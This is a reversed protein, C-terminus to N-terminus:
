GTKVQSPKKFFVNWAGGQRLAYHDFGMEGLVSYLFVPEFFNVLRLYQQGRLDRVTKLIIQYPEMGKEIMPRVDLFVENAPNLFSIWGPKEGKGSKESYVAPFGDMEGTGDAVRTIGVKWTEPGDLLTVWKFQGAKEHLLHYYLPRPDHDSVLDLEEGVKLVEFAELVKPYRAPPSLSRFDLLAPANL